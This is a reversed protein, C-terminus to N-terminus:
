IVICKQTEDDIYVYKRMTARVTQSEEDYHGAWQCSMFGLNYAIKGRSSSKLELLRGGVLMNGELDDDTFDIGKQLIVSVEQYYETKHIFM